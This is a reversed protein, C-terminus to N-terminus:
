LTRGPSVPPVQNQSCVGRSWVVGSSARVVVRWRLPNLGLKARHLLLDCSFPSSSETSLARICLCSFRLKSKWCGCSFWTHHCMETVGCQPSPVSLDRPSVLRASDTLALNPSTMEFVYHFCHLSVDPTSRQGGWAGRGM